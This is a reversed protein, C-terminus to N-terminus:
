LCKKSHRSPQRKHLQNQLGLFAHRLQTPLESEAAFAAVLPQPTELSFSVPTQAIPLAPRPARGRLRTALPQGSNSTQMSGMATPPTAFQPDSQAPFIAPLASRRSTRNAFPQLSHVEAAANTATRPSTRLSSKSGQRCSTAAVM